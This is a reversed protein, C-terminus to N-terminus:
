INYTSDSQIDTFSYREKQINGRCEPHGPKYKSKIFVLLRVCVHSVDSAHWTLARGNGGEVTGSEM